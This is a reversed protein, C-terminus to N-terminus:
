AVEVVRSPLRYLSNSCTVALITGADIYPVFGPRVGPLLALYWDVRSVDLIIVRPDLSKAGSSFFCLYSLCCYCLVGISATYTWYLLERIAVKRALRSLCYM